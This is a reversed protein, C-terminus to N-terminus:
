HAATLARVVAILRQLFTITALLAVLAVAGQFFAFSTAADPSTSWVALGTLLIVLRAERPAPGVAAGVGLSEAKARVYGVLSSASLAVLSSVLLAPDSRAAGLYAAAGFLASDAIRDATSDLFAGLRTSGRTARAVVGDLTDAISGLILVVLAVLPRQQALLISGVLMLLLGAGTIVNPTVGMAALGRGLPLLGSRTAEAAAKPVLGHSM